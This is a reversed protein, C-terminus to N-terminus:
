RGSESAKKLASKIWKEPAHYMKQGLDHVWAGYDFQEGTSVDSVKGDESEGPIPLKIQGQPILKDIRPAIVYYYLLFLGLMLMFFEWGNEMFDFAGPYVNEVVAKERMFCTKFADGDVVGDSDISENECTQFVHM